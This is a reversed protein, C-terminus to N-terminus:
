QKRLVELNSMKCTLNRLAQAVIAPVGASIRLVDAKTFNLKFKAVRFKHM